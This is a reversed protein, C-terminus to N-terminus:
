RNSLVKKKHILFLSLLSLISVILGIYFRKPVYQFTITHTGQEVEVGIVNDLLKITDVKKGDISVQWNSDYPITTFLINKEEPVEVTGQIYDDQFVEIQWPNKQLEEIAVDFEHPSYYAAFTGLHESDNLNMYSLEVNHDYFNDLCAIELDKVKSLKSGNVYYTFNTYGHSSDIATYFCIKASQTQEFFYDGEVEVLPINTYIEKTHNTMAKFIDSQYQFANLNTSVELINPYVMFGLPLAQPNQYIRVTSEGFTKSTIFQYNSPVEISDLFIAYKVGLLSDIVENVSYYSITNKKTNGSGYGLHIFFDTSDNTITSLFVDIGHYHYYIPGNYPVTDTTEIRYFPSDDHEQIEAIIEQYVKNQHQYDEKSTFSYDSTAFMTCATMEACSITVLILPIYVKQNDIIFLLFLYILVPIFNIYLFFNDQHQIFSWAFLITFLFTVWLYDKKRLSSIHMLSQMAIWLFFFNFFFVFRGNFFQPKSFATWAYNIYNGAVSLYLIGIIGLLLWKKKKSFSPNFFYLVLLVFPLLGMYLYFGDANLFDIDKTAGFFFNELFERINGHFYFSEGNMFETTSRAYEPIEKVVELLVFSTSLIVLLSIGIFVLTDKGIKKAYKHISRTSMEQYLFFIGSFLCAMFGFYYNTVIIYFLSFGYLGIKRKKIFKDIGVLLLPLALISDLWMPQFFYHTTFGILIYFCM